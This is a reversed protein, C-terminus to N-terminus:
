GEKRRSKLGAAICNGKWNQYDPSAFFQELAELEELYWCCKNAFRWGENWKASVYGRTYVTSEFPAGAVAKKGEDQKYQPKEAPTAEVKQAPVYKVTDGVTEMKLIPTAVVTPEEGVEETEVVATEPTNELLDALLKDFESTVQENAM